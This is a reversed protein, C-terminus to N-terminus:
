VAGSQGSMSHLAFQDVSVQNSTVGTKDDITYSFTDVETESGDHTYSVTGDSIVALSGNARGRMWRPLTASRQPLSISM